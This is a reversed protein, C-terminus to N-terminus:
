GGYRGLPVKGGQSKVWQELATLVENIAFQNNRKTTKNVPTVTQGFLISAVRQVQRAKDNPSTPAVGRLKALGPMITEALVQFERPVTKVGPIAGGGFYSPAPTQQGPTIPAGSFISRQAAIQGLASATGVVPGGPSATNYVDRALDSGFGPPLSGTKIKFILGKALDVVPKLDSAASTLPIDPVLATGGGVGFAGSEAAWPPTSRPDLPNVGNAAQLVHAQATIRGPTKILAELQLPVNKRSWTFFPNVFSKYKETLPGLDTYDFLYKHVVAAADWQSYGQKRLRMFLALRANDEVGSNFARGLRLVTNNPNIPSANRAGKRLGGSLSSAFDESNALDAAHSFFGSEIARTAEAEQIMQVESASLRATWDEGAKLAMHIKRQLGLAGASDALFTKLHGTLFFGNIVNGIMNRIVFGSGLPGFVTAYGKWLQTAQRDFALVKKVIEAQTGKNALLGFTKEVDPAISKPVLVQQRAAREVAGTESNVSSTPLDISTYHPDTLAKEFGADGRVFALPQNDVGRITRLANVSQVHAVDSKAESVRRVAALSPNPEHLPNGLPNKLEAQPIFRTEEARAKVKGSLAVTNPNFVASQKPLMSASEPTLYRAAYEGQQVQGEGADGLLGVGQQEATIKDYEGRIRSVLTQQAHSLRAFDEPTNGVDLAKLVRANVEEIGIGEKKGAKYAAKTAKVISLAPKSAEEIGSKGRSLATKVDTKLLREGVKADSTLFNTGPISRGGVKIGGPAGAIQHRLARPLTKAASALGPDARVAKKLGGTLLNTAINQVVPHSTIIGTKAINAAEEASIRGANEALTVAGSRAAAEAGPATGFGVYTLPDTVIGGALNGGFRVAGPLRAETKAAEQPSQGIAQLGASIPTVTSKGEVAATIDKGTQPDGLNGRHAILTQVVAAPRGLVNLATSAAEDLAGHPQLGQIRGAVDRLASVDGPQLGAARGLKAVQHPTYVTFATKLQANIAKKNVGTARQLRSALRVIAQGPDTKTPAKTGTGGGWDGGSSGGSGGGSDGTGWDAM